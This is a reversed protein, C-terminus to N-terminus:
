NIDFRISYCKKYLMANLLTM